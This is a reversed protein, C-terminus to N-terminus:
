GAPDLKRRAEALIQEREAALAELTQADSGKRRNERREMKRSLWVTGVTGAMLFVLYGLWQWYTANKWGIRRDLWFMSGAAVSLYAILVLWRWWRTPQTQSASM